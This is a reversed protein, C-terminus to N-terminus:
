PSYRGMKGLLGHWLGLGMMKMHDSRPKSFISYFGIKRFLKLFDIFKWKFSAPSHKYMWIANRCMYYHRLPSRSSWYRGFFAILDDGLSHHMVAEQSQYSLYGLSRARLCWDLDVYDIFLEDTMKGVARIVEVSTISGSSILTDVPLIGSAAKPYATAVSRSDIFRPGICAIRKGAAQMTHLQNRLIEIMNSAPISDQDFFILDKIRKQMAWDIGRNQAYAIGMNEGLELLEVSSGYASLRSTLAGSSGNDVVLIHPVSGILM